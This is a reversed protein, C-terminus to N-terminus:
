AGTAKFFRSKRTDDSAAAGAQTAEATIRTRAAPTLGFEQELRRLEAFLVAAAKLEPYAHYTTEGDKNEMEYQHGYTKLFKEAILWRQWLVCYRALAGGDIKTLIGMRDLMETLNDWKTKAIGDVWAPRRPMGKDPQPETGEKARAKARWSGRGELIKTPTPPPGRRSM